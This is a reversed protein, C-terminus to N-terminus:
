SRGQNEYFAQANEELTAWDVAPFPTDTTTRAKKGHGVTNFTVGIWTKRVESDNKGTPKTLEWLGNECRQLYQVKRASVKVYLWLKSQVGEAENSSDEAGEEDEIDGGYVVCVDHKETRVIEETSTKYPGRNRKTNKNKEPNQAEGAQNRGEELHKRECEKMITEEEETVLKYGTDENTVTMQLVCIINSAQVVGPDNCNFEYQRPHSDATKYFFVHIWMNGAGTVQFPQKYDVWGTPKDATGGCAKRARFIRAPYVRIVVGDGRKVEMKLAVNSGVGVTMGESTTEVTKNKSTLYRRERDASIRTGESLHKFITAKHLYGEVCPVWLKPQIKSSQGRVVSLISDAAEEFAQDAGDAEQNSTDQGMRDIEDDDDGWPGQEDEGADDEDDEDHEEGSAPGEYREPHTWWEPYPAGPAMHMRNAHERGENVGQGWADELEQDSPFSKLDAKAQGERPKDDWQEDLRRNHRVARIGSMSQIAGIKLKTTLTEIADLISYVRKNMNWGGLEAFVDEVVNSGMRAPIMPHDPALERHLMVALVFAHCSLKTDIFAERTIFNKGIHMGEEHIIWQRWLRMFSVVYGASKVRHAISDQHSTFIAVYRRLMKLYELMGLVSGDAPVGDGNALRTMCKLHKLSVLRTLSPWDMAKYGCRDNDGAHLGHVEPTFATQVLVIANIHVYTRGMRLDRSTHASSGLLKKAAHLYDQDPLQGTPVRLGGLGPETKVHHTFSPHTLGFSHQTRAADALMQQRRRADGDSSHAILPGLVERLFRMFFDYLMDWQPKIYDKTTFANCTGTFLVVFPPLCEHMPNVVVARAMTAVRKLARETHIQQYTDGLQKPETDSGVPQEAADADIECQHTNVCRKGKRCAQVSQCKNECEYGCYGVTKDSAQHWLAGPIIKTEDEAMFVVLSGPMIGHMMMLRKYTEAVTAWNSEVFGPMFRPVTQQFKQEIARINPFNFASQLISYVKPGGTFRVLGALYNTAASHVNNRRSANWLNRLLDAAVNIQNNANVRNDTPVELLATRVKNSFKVISKHGQFEQTLEM